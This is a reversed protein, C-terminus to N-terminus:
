IRALLRKGFRLAVWLVAVGLIIPIGATVIASASDAADTVATGVIEEPTPPEAFAPLAMMLAVFAMTMVTVARTRLSTTM